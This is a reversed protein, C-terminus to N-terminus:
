DAHPFTVQDSTECAQRILARIPEPVQPDPWVAALALRFRPDASAAEIREAFLTGAVNVLGEVASSGIFALAEQDPAHAVLELIVPWAREPGDKPGPKQLMTGLWEWLPSFEAPVGKPISKRERLLRVTLNRLYRQYAFYGEILGEFTAKPETPNRWDVDELTALV